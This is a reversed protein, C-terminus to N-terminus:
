TRIVGVEDKQMELGLFLLEKRSSRDTSDNKLIDKQMKLGDMMQKALKEM